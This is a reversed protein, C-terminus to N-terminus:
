EENLIYVEKFSKFDDIISKRDTYFLYINKKNKRDITKQYGINKFCFYKTLLLNEKINHKDVIVTIEM